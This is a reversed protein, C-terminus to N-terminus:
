VINNKEFLDDHLPVHEERTNFKITSIYSQVKELDVPFIFNKIIYIM